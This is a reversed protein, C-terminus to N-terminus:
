AYFEEVTPALKSAFTALSLAPQRVFGVLNVNKALLSAGVALDLWGNTVMTPHIPWRAPNYQRAKKADRRCWKAHRPFTAEASRHLM